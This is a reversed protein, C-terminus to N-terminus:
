KRWLKQLFINTNNHGILQGFKMTQNAKNQSTNPLIHLISYPCYSITQLDHQSM